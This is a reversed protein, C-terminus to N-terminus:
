AAKSCWQTQAWELVPGIDDPLERALGAAFADFAGRNLDNVGVLVPIGRDLADAIVPCFGRGMAELKGFRNIVLLDAGALAEAVRGATGEIADLDLRCGTSGAGLNQSISRRTGSAIEILDMDCRHRGADGSPEQIVGVVRRGRRLLDAVAGNLTADVSGPTRAHIFALHM